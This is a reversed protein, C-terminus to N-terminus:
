ISGKDNVCWHCNLNEEKSKESQTFTNKDKGIREIFM